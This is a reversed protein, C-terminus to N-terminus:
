KVLIREELENFINNFIPVFKEIDFNEMLKDIIMEKEERTIKHKIEENIAKEPVLSLMLDIFWRKLELKNEKFYKELLKREKKLKKWDNKGYEKRCERFCSIYSEMKIMAGNIVKWYYWKKIYNNLQKEMFDHWEKYDVEEWELVKQYKMLEVYNNWLMKKSNDPLEPIKWSIKVFEVMNNTFIEDIDQKLNEDQWNTWSFFKKKFYSFIKWIIWWAMIIDSISIDMIERIRM